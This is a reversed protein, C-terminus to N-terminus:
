ASCYPAALAWSQMNCHCERYIYGDTKLDPADNLPHQLPRHVGLLQSIRNTKGLELLQFRGVLQSIDLNSSKEIGSMCWFWM